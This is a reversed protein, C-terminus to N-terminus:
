SDQLGPQKIMSIDFSREKFSNVSISDDEVKDSKAWRKSIEELDDFQM